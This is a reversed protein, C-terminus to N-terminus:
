YCIVHYNRRIVIAPYHCFLLLLSLSRFLVFLHAKCLLIGLFHLIGVTWAAAVGFGAGQGYNSYAQCSTWCLTGLVLSSLVYGGCCGFFALQNKSCNLRRQSAGRYQRALQEDPDVERARLEPLEVSGQGSLDMAKNRGLNSVQRAFSAFTGVVGADDRLKSHSPTLNIHLQL